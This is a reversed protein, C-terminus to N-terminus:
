LFDVAKSQSIGRRRLSEDMRLQEQQLQMRIAGLQTLISRNQGGLCETHNLINKQVAPIQWRDELRRIADSGQRASNFPVSNKLEKAVPSHAKLLPVPLNDDFRSSNSRRQLRPSRRLLSLDQHTASHRRQVDGSYGDRLSMSEMRNALSDIRSLSDFRNFTTHRTPPEYSNLSDMRKLTDRRSYCDFRSPNYRASSSSSSEPFVSTSPINYSYPNRRSVPPSYHSLSKSSIDTPNNRISCESNAHKRFSYRTSQLEQKRRLLDESHRRMQEQRHVSLQDEIMREEQMRLLQQELRKNELDRERREQEERMQQLRRKEEIQLRLERQYADRKLRERELEDSRSERYVFGDTFSSSYLDSMLRERPSGTKRNSLISKPKDMESKLLANQASTLRQDVRFPALTRNNKKYYDESIPYPSLEKEPTKQYQLDYQILQTQINKIDTQVSKEFSLFEQEFSTPSRKRGNTDTLIQKSLQKLNNQQKALHTLYDARQKQLFYNRRQEYEGLGLYPAATVRLQPNNPSYEGYRLM